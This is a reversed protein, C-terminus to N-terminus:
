IFSVRDKLIYILEGDKFKIYDIEKKIYKIRMKKRM